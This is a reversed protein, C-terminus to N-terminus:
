RLVGGCVRAYGGGGRAFGAVPFEFYIITHWPVIRKKKQVFHEVKLIWLPVFDRRCFGGLLFHITTGPPWFSM